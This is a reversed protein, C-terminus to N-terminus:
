NRAALRVPANLRPVFFVGNDDTHDIRYYRYVAAQVDPPLPFPTTEDLEIAKFHHAGLLRIFPAAVRAGTVLQQDLNFVDVEAAKEAWYCYALSECIAPGTHSQLFAIDTNTLATEDGMPRTWFSWDRWNENALVLGAIPAFLALALARGALHPLATWRRSLKRLALGAALALAIDADFMANVDVGAGGLLLAGTAVAIAAYIAAFVVPRDKPRSLILWALACLPVTGVLLWSGFNDWASALSYVRASHLYDLLDVGLLLRIALLGASSLALVCMVFLVAHRRDFVALWIAAALPLAFLNHKVFGGAVFLVASAVVASATRPERLLVLLAALQVAHGLLQPDDMGVYDSTVVLVAALYLAAYSAVLWAGGMRRLALAVGGCLGAFALLSVIRGAVIDDGTVGRALLGTVYFSLPPYNNTMFEGASPYLGRGAMAATAYHANWGENPDLSVHLPVIAIARVFGALCALAMLALLVPLVPALAHDLAIARPHRRYTPSNM